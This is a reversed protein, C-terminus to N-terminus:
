RSSEGGDTHKNVVLQLRVGEPLQAAWPGLQNRESSRPKIVHIQGNCSLQAHGHDSDGGIRGMSYCLM